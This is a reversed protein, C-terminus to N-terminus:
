VAPVVKELWGKLDEFEKPITTHGLGEYVHLDVGPLGPGPAKGIGLETNLFNLSSYCRDIHVLDDANGHAAFIPLEKVYPAALEKVKHPMPLRSSLLVLGALKVPSTLGTVWTMAGGQSLGGLVIRSPDIGDRIEADILGQIEQRSHLMGEEDEPGVPVGFNKIDFQCPREETPRFDYAESLTISRSPANPLVWKVHSLSPQNVFSKAIYTWRFGHDGLGHLFIFTATHKSAADVTSWSIPKVESM